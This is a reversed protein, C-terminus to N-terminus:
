VGSCAASSTADPPQKQGDAPLQPSNPMGSSSDLHDRPYAKVAAFASVFFETSAVAILFKERGGHKREITVTLADDQIASLSVVRAAVGRPGRDVRAIAAESPWDSHPAADDVILAPGAHQPDHECPGPKCILPSGDARPRCPAPEAHVVEAQADIGAIFTQAEDLFRRDSAEIEQRALSRIWREIPRLLWFCFDRLFRM